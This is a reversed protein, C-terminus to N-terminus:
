ATSGPELRRFKYGSSVASTLSTIIAIKVFLGQAITKPDFVASMVIVAIYVVFAVLAAGLVNKKAWFWLGLYLASLAVNTALLMKVRGRDSAVAQDWSMGSEERVKSEFLERQEADFSSIQAEVKAIEKETESQGLFYMVIGGLLTLIAVALIAGRGSRIKRRHVNTEQLAGSVEAM